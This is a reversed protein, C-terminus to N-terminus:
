FGNQARDPHRRVNAASIMFMHIVSADVISAVHAYVPELAFRKAFFELKDLHDFEVVAGQTETSGARFLRTKVSVAIRRSDREAILDAGVHDVSAVEFGKLILTYAVLGEGFDGLLKPARSYRDLM